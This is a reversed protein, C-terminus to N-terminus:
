DQYTGSLCKRPYSSGYPCYHGVPCPGSKASDYDLFDFVGTPTATAAGGTCVYGQDCYGTFTSSGIECYKGPPCDVCQSEASLYEDFSYTGAPCPVVNDVGSLPDYLPCYHGTPCPDPWVLGTEQCSFGAACPSCETQGEKPNYYNIPCVNEVNESALRTSGPCYSGTPCLKITVDDLNSPHIAGGMCVYGAPCDELDSEVLGFDPCYKEAPCQLCNAESM